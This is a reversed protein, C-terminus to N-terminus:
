GEAIFDKNYLFFTSTKFVKKPFAAELDTALAM